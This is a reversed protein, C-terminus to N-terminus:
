LAEVQAEAVRTQLDAIRIKKVVFPVPLGGFAKRVVATGMPNDPCADIFKRETLAALEQASHVTWHFQQDASPLEARGVLILGARQQVPTIGKIVAAVRTVDAVDM